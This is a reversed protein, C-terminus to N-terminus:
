KGSGELMEIQKKVKPALPSGPYDKLLSHLTAVARDKRGLRMESDAALYLLQDIYPSDPNVAQLQEAQAIAQAYKGRGAWYRAFLLTWYGDLKEAPFQQQWARLEEVARFHKRAKLFEEASRAHAGLWATREVWGLPLGGARQAELYHRRASKGDGTAACYDGWVRHLEAAVPGAQASLHATAADLLSKAAAVKVLDNLAVDAAAIECEAKADGAVVRQTAGRWIQGATRADGLRYRALPGILEALKLLDADGKAASEGVFAVKGAEVAQLFYQDSLSLFEVAEVRDERADAREVGPRLNPDEEIVEATMAAVKSDDALSLAKAELLLVMQRLSAADLTKPDYTQVIRLYQDLTHPMNTYPPLPRDVYIRNTTELSKGGRRITLKLAYLGPRLYVHDVKPKNSTQGDGFDWQLKGQMTLSKPSDDRLLVGILPVDDDPLPVDGIVKVVFDPVYRATRLSVNGAALHGVRRCHFTGSPILTPHTPNPSTPDIEWLADMIAYPSAAAHDYEFKHLGPALQVDRRSGPLVRWTPGHYGPAAVVLKDDISLFSCDQSSTLFGFVGGKSLDLLGTYRSLFPGQKLSFPNTGHFVTQVYDAGIPTAADFAKRLSELDNFDCPRLQRTELLLGDRCTWPPSAERPPEGGYFIHYESHGKVTQFALRCFDGPGLQLIRFPALEKNRAAVVVNRGDGRIEGHHLFEVVVITYNEGEPLKVPRVANLETGAVRFSQAWASDAPRAVIACAIACAAVVFGRQMTM